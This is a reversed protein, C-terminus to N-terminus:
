RDQFDADACKLVDRADGWPSEMQLGAGPCPTRIADAASPEDSVDRPSSRRAHLLLYSLSLPLWINGVYSPTLSATSARNTSTPRRQGLEQVRPFGPPPPGHRRCWCAGCDAASRSFHNTLAFPPPFFLILSLFAYSPARLWSGRSGSSNQKPPPKRARKGALSSFPAPKKAKEPSRPRPKEIEANKAEM